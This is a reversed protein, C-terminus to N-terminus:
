CPIGQQPRELGGRVKRGIGDIAVTLPMLMFENSVSGIPASSIKVIRFSMTCVMSCEFKAKGQPRLFAAHCDRDSSFDSDRCFSCDAADCCKLM